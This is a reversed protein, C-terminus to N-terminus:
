GRWVLTGAHGARCFHTYINTDIVWQASANPVHARCQTALSPVGCFM